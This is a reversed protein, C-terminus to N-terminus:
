KVPASVPGEVYLRTGSGRRISGREVTVPRDRFTIGARGPCPKRRLPFQGQGRHDPSCGSNTLHARARDAGMLVADGGRDVQFQAVSAVLSEVVLDARHDVAGVAEVGGFGGECEDHEGASLDFGFQWVVCLYVWM